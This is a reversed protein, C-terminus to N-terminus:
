LKSCVFVVLAAIVLALAATLFHPIIMTLLLALLLLAFLGILVLWGIFVTM